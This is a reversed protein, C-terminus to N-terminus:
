YKKAEGILAKAMSGADFSEFEISNVQRNNKRLISNNYSKDYYKLVLQIASNLDGTEISDIAEQVTQGGLKKAIKNISAEIENKKFHGYENVLREIRKEKTLEIRIFPSKTMLGWLQNPIFVKGIGISEDELWIRKNLDLPRFAEFLMNQFHETSPQPDQGLAGFASGKHNAIGELDVIQEGMEKLKHLIETKGSGTSGTILFLKKPKELTKLAYNRYAKYGKALTKAVLGSTNMLWAFSESRMGGRWCHILLHDEYELEWCKRVFESMKPGVIDLGELIASERSKRKFTTGVLAREENTFLPINVSGPIHGSEFEGPSRVDVIPNNQSSELFDEIPLTSM